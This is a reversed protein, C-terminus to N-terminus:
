TSLLCENEITIAKPFLINNELHIHKHLDEVYAELERYAINYSNCADKPPTFGNSLKTIRRLREGEMDHDNAMVLIPNRVTLFPPTDLIERNRQIDLLHLIYPFLIIEEKNLHLLIEEASAKFVDYLEYLEPHVNGHVSKVKELIQLLFPVKKRIYDHHKEVIYQILKDLTWEQFNDEKLSTDNMTKSLADLVENADLHMTACVDSITKKGGCCFDIGYFNFIQATRFDQAVVEGVSSENTIDM